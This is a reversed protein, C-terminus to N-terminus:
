KEEIISKILLATNLAGDVHQINSSKVNSVLDELERPSCNRPDVFPIGLLKAVSRIEDVNAGLVIDPNYVMVTPKRYAVASNITTVGPSAIVVSAEAILRDIDPDFRFARWMPKKRLVVEPDLGGTQVVVNELNTKLLLRLLERNGMTGMTVLIFGGDKVKYIPKEYVLGVYVSRTPYLNKQINWQLLVNAINLRYLINVTRSPKNIRFVDEICLVNGRVVRKLWSVVVPAFSYNSGTCLIVDFFDKISISDIFAKLLGPILKYFPEGPNRPKHIKLIKIEGIRRKIRNVSWQDDRPTAFVVHVDKIVEKLREGVAIALGTHGGGGALLLIRM